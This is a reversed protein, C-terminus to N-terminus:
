AGQVKVWGYNIDHAPAFPPDGQGFVVYCEPSVSFFIPVSQGDDGKMHWLCVSKMSALEFTGDYQWLGWRVSYEHPILRNEPRPVAQIWVKGSYAAPHCYNWASEYALGLRNQLAAVLVPIGSEWRQFHKNRLLPYQEFVVTDRALLLPLVLVQGTSAELNLASGLETQPWRRKLFTESLFVVVVHSQALGGNIKEIIHDGWGIEAEDLWYTIGNELLAAAFPRVYTDKDAGAHCLFVDRESM